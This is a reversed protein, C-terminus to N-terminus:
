KINEHSSFLTTASRYKKWLKWWLYFSKCYQCTYICIWSTYLNRIVTFWVFLHAPDINQLDTHLGTFKLSFSGARLSAKIFAPQALFTPFSRLTFIVQQHFIGVWPRLARLLFLIKFLHFHRLESQSPSPQFYLILLLFRLLLGRFPSPHHQFAILLVVVFHLVDVFSFLVVLM